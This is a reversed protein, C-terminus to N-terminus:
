NKDAITYNRDIICRIDYLEPVDANEAQSLCYLLSLREVDMAYRCPAQSLHIVGRSKVTAAITWRSM